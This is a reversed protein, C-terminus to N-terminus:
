PYGLSQLPRLTVDYCYTDAVWKLTDGLLPIIQGLYKIKTSDLRHRGISRQDIKRPVIKGSVEYHGTIVQDIPLNIKLNFFSALETQTAVPQCVLDEYRIIKTNKGRNTVLYQLAVMEGLWRSPLIHYLRGSRPLHSTLVDFPHRVIYVLEILSPIEKIRQYASSDRKIILISRDTGYLGFHEVSLEKAIVDVGEFSNMVATLLWTGSRGCGMVYLRRINNVKNIDNLHQELAGPQSLRKLEKEYADSTYRVDSTAPGIIYAM